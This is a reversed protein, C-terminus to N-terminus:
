VSKKKVGVFRDLTECSFYRVLISSLFLLFVKWFEPQHLVRGSVLMRAGSFTHSSSTERKRKLSPRNEPTFKSNTEPLTIM